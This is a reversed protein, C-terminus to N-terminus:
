CSIYLQAFLQFSKGLITIENKQSDGKRRKPTSFISFKNEKFPNYLSEEKSILWNSLFAQFQEKEIRQINSITETVYYGVKDRSDSLILDQSEETFPNGYKEFVDVLSHVHKM